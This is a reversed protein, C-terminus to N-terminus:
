DPQKTRQWEQLVARGDVIGAFSAIFVPETPNGDAGVHASVAAPFNQLVRRDRGTATALNCWAGEAVLRPPPRDRRCRETADSAALKALTPLV